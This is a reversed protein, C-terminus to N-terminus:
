TDQIEEMYKKAQKSKLEPFKLEDLFVDKHLEFWNEDVWNGHYYVNDASITLIDPYFHGAPTMRYIEGSFPNTMTYDDTEAYMVIDEGCQLIVEPVSVGQKKFEVYEKGVDPEFYKSLLKPKVGFVKELEYGNHVNGAFYASDDLYWVHFPDAMEGCRYFIYQFVQNALGGSLQQIKM